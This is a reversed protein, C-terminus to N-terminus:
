GPGRQALDLLQAAEELTAAMPKEILVHKGAELAARAISFHQQMSTLVLVLDIEGSETIQRYDTTFTEIGFEQAVQGRQEERIDCAAVAQALGQEALPSIAAMYVRMVRGCGVIGVRLPLTM